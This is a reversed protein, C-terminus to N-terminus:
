KYTWVKRGNPYSYAVTVGYRKAVEIVRARIGAYWSGYRAARGVLDAGSLSQHGYLVDYAYHGKPFGPDDYIEDLVEKPVKVITERKM